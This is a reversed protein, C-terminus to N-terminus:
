GIREKRGLVGQPRFLLVGILVILAVAYRLDPPIVITSLETIIGIILSGVLAGFASGLGGLTVAAFLLLLIAFGMDWTVGRYLGYLVGSLGTLAGALVWVIRIVRDVNIGSAAALSANDSVARTAKGIRTRTLFYAVAALMVVSVGMSILSTLTITVPGITVNETIGTDINRTGGDFFYLYLYRLVISLGITVILVQVLGVGRKRLPKFLVADQTWGLAASLAVTLLVALLLNWGMSTFVYFIIAGFTLMEGHAFNNVGTTGFILSIGIAALALLLGFNLGYIFRSFLTDWISGTATTGEGTPFLVNVTNTTGVTVDRSVNDPDRPAVGDPLTDVQLTATYSGPGPVSVSWRGDSRTTGIESFGSGEVAIEVGEVPEGDAQIIGGITFQTSIDGTGPTAAPTPTTQASAPAALLLSLVAVASALLSVLLALRPLSRSRTATPSSHGM